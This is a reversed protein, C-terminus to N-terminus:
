RTGVPRPPAPRDKRLRGRSREPPAAIRIPPASHPADRRGGRLRQAPAARDATAPSDVQRRRVRHAPIAAAFSGRVGVGVSRLSRKEMLSAPRCVREHTINARARRTPRTEPQIPVTAKNWPANPVLALVPVLRPIAPAPGALHAVPGARAPVAPLS